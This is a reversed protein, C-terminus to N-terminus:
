QAKFIFDIRNEWSFYNPSFKTKMTSPSPGALEAQIEIQALRSLQPFRFYGDIDSKVSFLRLNHYEAAPPSGTIAAGGTIEVIQEKTDSL